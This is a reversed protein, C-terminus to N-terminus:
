WLFEGTQARINLAGQRAANHTACDRVRKDWSVRTGVTDALVRHLLKGETTCTRLLEAMHTWRRLLDLHEPSWELTSVEYQLREQEFWERRARMREPAFVWSLPPHARRYQEPMQATTHARWVHVSFMAWAAPAIRHEVMYAIAKVLKLYFTSTTATEGKRFATVRRSTARQVAGEYGATCARTAFSPPTNADLIPPAPRYVLPLNPYPPIEPHAAVYATWEGADTHLQGRITM